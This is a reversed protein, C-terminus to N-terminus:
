RREQIMQEAGDARIDARSGVLTRSMMAGARIHQDGAGALRQQGVGSVGRVRGWDAGHGPWTARGSAHPRRAQRDTRPHAWVLAGAVAFGPGLGFSFLRLGAVCLAYREHRGPHRPAPGLASCTPRRGCLGAPALHSSPSHSVHFGKTAAEKEERTKRCAEGALVLPALWTGLEGATSHESPGAHWTVSRPGAAAAARRPVAPTRVNTALASAPPRGPHEPVCVWFFVGHRPKPGSSSCCM